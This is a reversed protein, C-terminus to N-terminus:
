RPRKLPPPRRRRVLCSEVRRGAPSGDARSDSGEADGERAWKEYAADKPVTFDRMTVLVGRQAVGGSWVPRRPSCWSSCASSNYVKM